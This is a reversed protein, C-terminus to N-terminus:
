PVRKWGNEEPHEPFCETRKGGADRRFIVRSENMIYSIRGSQPYEAPVAEIGYSSSNRHSGSDYAQAKGDKEFMKIAIFYYGHAAVPKGKSPSLAPSDLPSGDAKALEVPIERIEQGELLLRYLGSVDGVWYDKVKNNDRDNDRFDEQAEGISKLASFVSQEQTPPPPQEKNPIAFKEDPIDEDLVLEEFTETTSGERGEQTYVRKLPHFTKPDYFVKVNAFTEPGPDKPYKLRKLRYSLTKANGEDPGTKLDSVALTNQFDLEPWDYRAIYASPAWAIEGRALAYTVLKFYDGLPVSGGGLDHGGLFTRMRNGDSITLGKMPGGDTPKFLDFALKKEPSLPGDPISMVHEFVVKNGSKILLNFLSEKTGRPMKIKARISKAETFIREIKTFEGEPTAQPAAESKDSAILLLFLWHLCPTMMGTPLRGMSTHKAVHVRIIIGSRGRGRM